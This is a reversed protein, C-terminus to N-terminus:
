RSAAALPTGRSDDAAAILADALRDVMHARRAPDRLGLHTTEGPDAVLDFLQDEGTSHRSYKMGDAVITRNKAPTRRNAVVAHPLDDEILVHDRVSAGPDDLIPVLSTGQIGDYGQLGALELLTPGLDISGALSRTRGAPRRPDAVVMPVQLTGRYHMSGKLMLGHDGMMDGHDSTFVVITDDAQGLRDIAALVAGVRDDIM